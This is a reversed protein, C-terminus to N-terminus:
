SMLRTKRLCVDWSWRTTVMRWLYMSVRLLHGRLDTVLLLPKRLTKCLMDSFTPPNGSFRRPKSNWGTQWSSVWRVSVVHIAIFHRLISYFDNSSIFPFLQTLFVEGQPGCNMMEYVRAHRRACLWILGNRIMIIGYSEMRRGAFMIGNWCSVMDHFGFGRFFM